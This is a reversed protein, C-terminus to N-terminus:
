TLTVEPAEIITCSFGEPTNQITIDTLVYNKSFAETVAIHAKYSGSSYLSVGEPTDVTVKVDTSTDIGSLDIPKTNLAELTSLVSESGVVKVKDSSLTISSIYYGPACDGSTVIHLPLTKILGVKASVTVQAPNLTVNEVRGGNEDYAYLPITESFDAKRGELPCTAKVSKVLSTFSDSGSISVSLEECEFSTLAYGGAPTGSTEAKSNLVKQTYAGLKVLTYKTSIDSLTVGDPLGLIYVEITYEGSKTIGSLDAVATLNVRSVRSIATTPGYLKINVKKEGEDFVLAENLNLYHIDLENIRLTRQPDTTFTAVMWLFFAMIISGLARLVKEMSFNKNMNM